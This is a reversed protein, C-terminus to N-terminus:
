GIGVMLGSSGAFSADELLCDVIPALVEVAARQAVRDRLSPVALPRVGGDDKPIVFGSLPGSDYRGGLLARSLDGVLRDPIPEAGAPGSGKVRERSAARNREVHAVAKELVAPEAVRELLSSSGGLWSSSHDSTGRITYRGMGFAVSKGLHLFMGAVLRLKESDSLGDFRVQGRVGEIRYGEKLAGTGRVVIDAPLLHRVTAVATSSEEAMGAREDVDPYRGHELYFRRRQLRDLFAVAPFYARDFLGAGSGGESRGRPLCLPSLLSLELTEEDLVSAMEADLDVTPLSETSELVFNGGLVPATGAAMRGGVQALGALLVTALGRDDGVLTVVFRYRDGAAFRVRGSENAFPVLGDPLKHRELARSLLGRLVGGHEFPFAVPSALRLTIALRDLAPLPSLAKTM